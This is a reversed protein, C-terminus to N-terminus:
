DECLAALIAAEDDAAADAPPDSAPVDAPAMEDSELRSLTEVLTRDKHEHVEDVIDVAAAISPPAAAAAGRRAGRSSGSLRAVLEDFTEIRDVMGRAVAEKADYMRGQGFSKKVEAVTVARGRAVAKLFQAYLDDVQGQFHARSDDSLEQWWAGELKNEGASIANVKIGEKALWESEDVMLMYVGISGVQGSPTVVLEDAQSGLYYAASAAMANAIAVIPKTKAAVAKAIKTALEPVGEVSGGPSDFDLIVARVTEDAMQRDLARGIAETSAGGSSMEFSDARHAITGHIPIVAITGPATRSTAPRPTEALRAAIEQDSLRVGSAKLTLLERIDALKEPLLCWPQRTVRRIYRSYKFTPQDSM